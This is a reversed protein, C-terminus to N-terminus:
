RDLSNRIELDLEERHRIQAENWNRAEDEKGLRGYGRALLSLMDSDAVNRKEAEKGSAVARVWDGAEAELSARLAWSRGLDPYRRNFDLAEQVALDRRGERLAKGVVALPKEQLGPLDRLVQVRDFSGDLFKYLSTNDFARLLVMHNKWFKEYEQEAMGELQFGPNRNAMRVSEERQYLFFKVGERKLRKALGEATGAEQAWQLFVPKKWIFDVIVAGNLPYAQFVGFALTRDGPVSQKELLRYAAFTDRDFYYHRALRVDRSELGLAAAYPADTKLQTMFATGFAAAWAAFFAWRVYRDRGTLAYNWALGAFAALALVGGTAHRLSTAGCFWAAFFGAAFLVLRRGRADKWAKGAWPLAAFLMPTLAAGTQNRLTFFNDWFVRLIRLPPAGSPAGTDSLLMKEMGLTYGGPSTGFIGTLLPYCPNGQALYNRLLWPLCPLLFGLLAWSSYLPKGEKGRGFVWVALLGVAAFLATYKVGLACGMFFASTAFWTRAGKKATMAEGLCALSALEYGALFGEVYGFTYVVLFFGCSFFVALARRGAQPIARLFFLLSAASIVAALSSAMRALPEGGMSYFGALMLDASKPMLGTHDPWQLPLQRLRVVEKAFRFHDLVADWAVPPALIEALWLLLPLFLIIELTTWIVKRRNSGKFPRGAFIWAPAFFALVSMGQLIGNVALGFTWLSFFATSLVFSPFWREKEPLGSFLSRGLLFTWGSFGFFAAVLGLVAVFRGMWLPGACALSWETGKWLTFDPRFADWGLSFSFAVLLILSFITKRM